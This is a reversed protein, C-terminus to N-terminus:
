FCVMDSNLCYNNMLEYRLDEPMYLAAKKKLKIANAIKLMEAVFQSCFYYHKSIFPMKLLCFFVGLYSYHYKSKTQSLRDLELKIQQYQQETVNIEYIQGGDIGHRSFKEATELTFGKTTFSYFERKNEDLSISAHTYSYGYKKILFNAFNDHFTTFLVYIKKENNAYEM